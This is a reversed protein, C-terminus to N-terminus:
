GSFLGGGNSLWLATQGSSSESIVAANYSSLQNFYLRLINSYQEIFQADYETPAAPLRPQVVPRYRNIITTAM